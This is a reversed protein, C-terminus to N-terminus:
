TRCDASVLQFNKVTVLEASLILTMQITWPVFKEVLESMRTKKLALEQFLSFFTLQNQM